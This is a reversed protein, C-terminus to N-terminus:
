SAHVCLMEYILDGEIISLLYNECDVKATIVSEESDAFSEEELVTHLEENNGHATVDEAQKSPSHTEEERSQFSNLPEGYKKQRFLRYVKM